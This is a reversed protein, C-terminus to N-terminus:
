WKFAWDTLGTMDAIGFALGVLPNARVAVMVTKFVAKTVAGAVQMGTSNPDNITNVADHIAVGADVVGSAKGLAGVVKSVGETRKLLM